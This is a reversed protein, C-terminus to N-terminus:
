GKELPMLAGDKGRRGQIGGIRLPGAFAPIGRQARCSLVKIHKM